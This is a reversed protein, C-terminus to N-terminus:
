RERFTTRREGPGYRGKATQRDTRYSAFKLHDSPNFEDSRSRQETLEVRATAKLGTMVYGQTEFKNTM